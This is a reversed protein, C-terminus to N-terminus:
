RDDVKEFKIKSISINEKILAYMGILIGYLNMLFHFITSIIGIIRSGYGFMSLVLILTGEFVGVGGPTIPIAKALTAAMVAFMIVPLNITYSMAAFVYYAAVGELLWIVISYIVLLIFRARNKVSGSFVDFLKHIFVRLERKKIRELKRRYKYAIEFFIFVAILVAIGTIMLYYFWEALQVKTVVYISCLLVVVYVGIVDFVRDLITAPITESYRYGHKSKLYYSRALDGIKVPIIINLSNGLNYALFSDKLGVKTGSEALIQQWRVARLLMDATYIVLMLLILRYEANKLYVAIDGFGARAIIIYMLVVALVFSLIITVRRTTKM